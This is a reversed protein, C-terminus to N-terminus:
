AWPRVIRAEKHPFLSNCPELGFADSRWEPRLSGVEDRKPTALIHKRDRSEMPGGVGATPAGIM